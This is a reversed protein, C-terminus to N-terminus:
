FPLVVTINNKRKNGETPNLRTSIVVGYSIALEPNANHEDITGEVKRM